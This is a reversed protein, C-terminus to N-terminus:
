KKLLFDMVSLFRAERAAAERVRRDERERNERILREERERMERDRREEREMMERERREERDMMERERREEREMIVREWEAERTDRAEERRELEKIALLWEPEKKTRKAAPSTPPAEPAASSSTATSSFCSAAAREESPFSSVVTGGPTSSSGVAVLTISHSSGLVKDMAAYWKWTAATMEVGETSRGNPPNKLEKYKQKLNEWKKKMFAVTVKGELGMQRIFMEFGKVAANRKGTFLSENAGRWLILQETIEDMGSLLNGNKDPGAPMPQGETGETPLSVEEVCNQHAVAPTGADVSAVVIPGDKSVDLSQEVPSSQLYEEPGEEKIIVSEIGDEVDSHEAIMGVCQLTAVEQEVVTPVADGWLSIVASHPEDTETARLECAGQVGVSHTKLPREGAAGGVVTRLGKEMLELKRKLTGIENRSRSVELRLVALEEIALKCIKNVAEQALIEIVSALQTMRTESEVVPFIVKSAKNEQSGSLEICFTASSEVGKSIETLVATAMVEMISVIQRQFTNSMRLSM